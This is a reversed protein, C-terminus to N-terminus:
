KNNLLFTDVDFRLHRFARMVDKNRLPLVLHRKEVNSVSGSMCDSCNSGAISSTELVFLTVEDLTDQHSPLAVALGLLQAPRTQM